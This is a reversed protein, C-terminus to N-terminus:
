FIFISMRVEPSPSKNHKIVNKSFEARLEGMIESQSDAKFEVMFSGTNHEIQNSHLWMRKEMGQVSILGGRCVNEEFTNQTM